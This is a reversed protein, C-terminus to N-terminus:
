KDKNKLFQIGQLIQEDSMDDLSTVNAKKLWLDITKQNVGKENILNKLEDLPSQMIEFEGDVITTDNKIDLTAELGSMGKGQPKIAAEEKQMSTVEEESMIGCLADPFSDRCAFGRARHQLMRTPYNTWPGKKRWLEARIADDM